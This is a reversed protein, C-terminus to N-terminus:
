SLNSSSSRARSLSPFLVKGVQDTEFLRIDDKSLAHALDAVAERSEDLPDFFDSSYEALLDSVFQSSVCASGSTVKEMDERVRFALLLMGLVFPQGEAVPPQFYPIDLIRGGMKGYFRLRKEPDGRQEDPLFFRPHEIEAVIMRPSRVAQWRDFAATTVASGIGAARIDSRVALYSLLMSESRPFWDGIVVGVPVGDQRAVTIDLRDESLRNSFSTYPVLEDDNFSPRLIESYIQDFERATTSHSIEM